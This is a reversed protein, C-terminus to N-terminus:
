LFFPDFDSTPKSGNRQLLCQFFSLFYNPLDILGLTGGGEGSEGPLLHSLVSQMCFFLNIPFNQAIM